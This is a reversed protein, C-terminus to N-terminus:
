LLLSQIDDGTLASGFSGGVVHNSTGLEQCHVVRVLQLRTFSGDSNSLEIALLTGTEFPQNLLLSVGTASIDLIKAPGFTEKAMAVVLCTAKVSPAYRVSAQRHIVPADSSNPRLPISKDSM